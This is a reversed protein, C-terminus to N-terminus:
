VGQLGEYHDQYLSRFKCVVMPQSVSGFFSHLEKLAYELREIKAFIEDEHAVASARVVRQSHANQMLYAYARMRVRRSRSSPSRNVLIKALFSWVAPRAM